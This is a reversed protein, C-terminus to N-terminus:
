YSDDVDRQQQQLKAMQSARMYCFPFYFRWFLNMECGLAGVQV